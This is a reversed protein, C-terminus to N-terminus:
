IHRINWENANSSLKLSLLPKMVCFTNKMWRRNGGGQLYLKDSEQECYTGKWCSNFKWQNQVERSISTTIHIEPFRYSSIHPQFLWIPWKRMQFEYSLSVWMTLVRKLGRKPMVTFKSKFKSKIGYKWSSTPHFSWDKSLDSSSIVYCETQSIVLPPIYCTCKSLYWLPCKVNEAIIQFDSQM